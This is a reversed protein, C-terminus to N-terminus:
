DFYGDTNDIIINFSPVIWKGNNLHKSRFPIFRNEIRETFIQSVEITTSSLDIDRVGYTRSKGSGPSTKLWVSTKYYLSFKDWYLWNHKINQKFLVFLIFKSFIVIAVVTSKRTPRNRNNNACCKTKTLLDKRYNM